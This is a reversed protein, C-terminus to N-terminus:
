DYMGYISLTASRYSPDQKEAAMSALSDWQFEGETPPNPSLFSRKQTSAAASSSSPLIGLGTTPALSFRKGPTPTPSPSTDLFSSSSVALPHQELPDEGAFVSTRPTDLSEDPSSLPSLGGGSVRTATSRTLDPTRGGDSSSDVYSRGSSSLISPSPLGLQTLVDREAASMTLPNRPPSSLSSTTSHSATPAHHHFPRSPPQQQQRNALSAGRALCLPAPRPPTSSSPLLSSSSSAGFVDATSDIALNSGSRGMVPTAGLVPRESLPSGMPSFTGTSGSASVGQAYRPRQKAPSSTASANSSVEGVSGAFSHFSHSEHMLAPTSSPAFGPSPPPLSDKSGSKPVTSPGAEATVAPVPRRPLNLPAVPTSGISMRSQRRASFSSSTRDSAQSVRPFPRAGLPTPMKQLYSELERLPKSDIRTSFHPDKEERDTPNSSASPALPPSSTTPTTSPPLPFSDATPSLNRVPPPLSASPAPATRKSSTRAPLNHRPQPEQQPPANLNVEGWEEGAYADAFGVITDKKRRRTEAEEEAKKADISLGVMRSQRKTRKEEITEVKEQEEKKEQEVPESGAMVKLFRSEFAADMARTDRQAGGGTSASFHSPVESPRPPRVPPYASAIIPQPAVPVGNFPRHHPSPPYQPSTSSFSSPPLPPASRSLNTEQSPSPSLISGQYTSLTPPYQTTSSTLPRPQGSFSIVDNVSFQDTQVRQRSSSPTMGQSPPPSPTARSPSAFLEARAANLDQAPAFPPYQRKEGQTALTALSTSSQAAWGKEGMMGGHKALSDTSAWASGDGKGGEFPNVTGGFKTTSGGGSSAGQDTLSLWAKEEKKAKKRKWYCCGIMVAFIVVAAAGGAIIGVLAGTSLEFGNTAASSSSSASSATSVAGVVGSAGGTYSQQTAFSYPYSATDSLNRSKTPPSNGVSRTATGSAAAGPRFSSSSTAVVADEDVTATARSTTTTRTPAPLLM